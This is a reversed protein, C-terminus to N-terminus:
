LGLDRQYAIRQAGSEIYIIGCRIFGLKELLHQMTKNNEHTDIKLNNIKKECFSVVTKLVGHVQGNSAIRHIVGYENDSLWEGNEIVNYTADNGIAFYFVFLPIDSESVGVYLCENEIDCVLLDIPPYTKGWQTENGTKAMYERAAEYIKLVAELDNITAKRIKM